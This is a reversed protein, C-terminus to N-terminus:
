ADSTLDDHIGVRALRVRIRISTLAVHNRVVSIGLLQVLQM